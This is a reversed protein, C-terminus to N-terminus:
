QFKNDTLDLLRAYSILALKSLMNVPHFLVCAFSLTSPTAVYDSLVRWILVVRM